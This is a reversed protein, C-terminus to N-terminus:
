NGQQLHEYKHYQDLNRKLIDMIPGLLRTFAQADLSVCKVNGKAIVTAARPSDNLLAIEGFYDGPKYHNVEVPEADLNNDPRKLVVAEGEVLIYFSDGRNGQEVIVEENDYEIPELADAIKVIESQQLSSLIPVTKLFSEYLKRKRFTNNVIYRRFTVRDVAWLVSDESAKVTAARPTNYMLALQGFSGGPGVEIVKKGDVIVDFKGSDVVYFNDGEEGQVIVAVGSSVKKEFMADVIENRQDGELNRFLLNNSIASAIRMRAEDSKQIIIREGTDDDTPKLSEASVSGRRMRNVNTVENNSKHFRSSLGAGPKALRDQFEDEEEASINTQSDHLPNNLLFNIIESHSYTEDLDRHRQIKQLIKVVLELPREPQYKILAALCDKFVSEIQHEDLYKKVAPPTKQDSM